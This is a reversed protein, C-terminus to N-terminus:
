KDRSIIAGAVGLSLAWSGLIISYEHRSAWDSIKQSTNMAKWKEDVKRERENLIMAGEGTRVLFQYTLFIFLVVKNAFYM